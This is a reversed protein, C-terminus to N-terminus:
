YWILVLVARELRSELGTELVFGSDCQDISMHTLDQTHNSSLELFQMDYVQIEEVHCSTLLEKDIMLNWLM